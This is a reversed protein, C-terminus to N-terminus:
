RWRTDVTNVDGADFLSRSVAQLFAQQPTRLPREGLAVALAGVV